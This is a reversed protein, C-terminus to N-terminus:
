NKNVILGGIYYQKFVLKGKYFIKECGCFDKIGGNISSVYLFNGEKLRNPGRFPKSVPVKSLAKKLFNFVEKAFNYNGHYKFNMGGSYAMAWIPKNKFSVIEQGPAFFFGSYSDRYYYNGKKFELEKFNPRQPRVEKGSGAYGEVKAKVLFKALEKLNIKMNNINKTLNILKELM